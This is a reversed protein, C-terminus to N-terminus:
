VWIRIRNCCICMAFFFINEETRWTVLFYPVANYNINKL